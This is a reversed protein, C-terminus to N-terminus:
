RCFDVSIRTQDLGTMLDDGAGEGGSDNVRAYGGGIIDDPPHSLRHL